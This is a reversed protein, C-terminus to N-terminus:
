VFRGSALGAEKRDALGPRPQQRALLFCAVAACAIPLAAFGFLQGVQLNFSILIGGIVPGAISGFRGVANAWGVGHARMVTPYIRGAAANLTTQGGVVCFGAGFAMLMASPASHQGLGVLAVIPAGFAFLLANAALGKRDILYSIALGGVIGGIPILATALAAQASTIAPSALVTPMWSVLFHLTMLNGAFAVWLLITTMARRESFLRRLSGGGAGDEEHLFFRRPEGAQATGTMRDVLAAVADRRDPRLALFRVSEPLFFVQCLAIAIPAAGGVLFMVQWGFHPILQTAVLAGSAAGLSYGTMVIWVGTAQIRRPAYESILAITNPLVGGVGLGALFRWCILDRPSAASMTALNALGLFLASAIIMRKRGVRDGLPGCIAAGLMLGTLGAGFIPGLAAKPMRWAQILGHAAFGINQADYGDTLMVAFLLSLVTLQFLGFKQTEIVKSIDIEQSAM